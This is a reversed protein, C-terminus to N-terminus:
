VSEGVEGPNTLLLPVLVDPAVVELVARDDVTLLLGQGPRARGLFRKEAESINYVEGLLDRDNQRPNRLLLTTGVQGLYVRAQAEGPVSVGTHPDGVLDTISQTMMAAAGGLKGATRALFTVLQATDERRFLLHAEDVGVLTRNRSALLRTQIYEAIMAYAVTQLHTGGTQVLAQVNFVVLRGDTRVNTEGSFMGLTGRVFPRLRVALDELGKASEVHRLVDELTPSPRARLRTSAHSTDVISRWDDTMGKETYAAFLPEELLARVQAPMKDDPYAMMEILAKLFAVKTSVPRGFDPDDMRSADVPLLIECPNIRHPYGVGFRVYTGGLAETYRQYDIAPSPDIVVVDWGLALLQAVLTKFAFSKGSRTAAVFLLHPQPVRAPDVVVANGTLLNVGWLLGAVHLLEGATFPFTTCTVVTPLPRPRDILCLGLPVTSRFAPLEELYCERLALTLGAAEQKLDAGAQRLEEATDAFITVLVTVDFMRQYGRALEQRLEDADVRAEDTYVDPRRGQRASWWASLDLNSQQKNIENLAQTTPIPAVHLTIRRRLNGRTFHLLPEMWGNGVTGPYAVAVYTAAYTGGLDLMGPSESVAAPSVVEALRPANAGVGGGSRRITAQVGGMVGSLSVRGAHGYATQLVEGLRDAGCVRAKFGVGELTRALRQARDAAEASTRGTITMVTSEAQVGSSVDRALEAQAAAVTALPGEMLESAALEMQEAYGTVDAPETFLTIQVSWPLGNLVRGFADLRENQEEPSLLGFVEGEVEVMGVYVGDKRQVASGEIAKVDVLV